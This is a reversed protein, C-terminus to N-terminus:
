KKWMRKLRKMDADEIYDEVFGCDLCVCTLSMINKLMGVQIVSHSGRLKKDRNNVVNIGMCKPCKGNKM